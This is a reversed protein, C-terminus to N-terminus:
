LINTVAYEASWKPPDIEPLSPPRPRPHTLKYDLASTSSNVGKPPTPVKNSPASGSSHLTSTTTFARRSLSQRLMSSAPWRLSSAMAKQHPFPPHTLAAYGTNPFRTDWTKAIRSQRGKQRKGQSSIPLSSLAVPSGPPPPPPLFPSSPSSPPSPSLPRCLVPPRAILGVSHTVPRGLSRM